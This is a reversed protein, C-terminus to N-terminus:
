GPSETQRGIGDATSAASLFGGFAGLDEELDSAHGIDTLEAEIRKRLVLYRPIM